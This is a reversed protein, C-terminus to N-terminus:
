EPIFSGTKLYHITNDIVKNNLMMFTHTVPLMLHANM